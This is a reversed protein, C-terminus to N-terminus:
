TRGPRETIMGPVTITKEFPQLEVTLLQLGINSRAQNSLELSNQEEHGPHGHDHGAAGHDHGHEETNTVAPAGTLWDREFYAVGGALAVLVLALCARWANSPRIRPSM